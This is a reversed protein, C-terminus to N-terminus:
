INVACLFCFGHELEDTESLGDHANAVCDFAGAATCALGAVEVAVHAIVIEREDALRGVRAELTIMAPECVPM